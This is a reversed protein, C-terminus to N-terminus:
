LFRNILIIGGWILLPYVFWVFEFHNTQYNLLALVGNVFIYIAIEKRGQKSSM